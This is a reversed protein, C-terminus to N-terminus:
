AGARVRDIAMQVDAVSIERLCSMEACGHRRYCPACPVLHTLAVGRPSFPRFNAIHGNGATLAVVPVGAEAAIHSAVTDVGVVFEAARVVDVFGSWDLTGCLNTCNALGQTARDALAAERGSLGTCRVAYGREVFGTLLVRWNDAPWEREPTGAGMHAVVYGAGPVAREARNPTLHGRAVADIGLHEGILAVQIEIAHRDDDPYSVAHTYLAGFGASTFGVRVPVGARHLVRSSNPFFPYLDFALDYRAARIEATVRRADDRYRQVRSLIGAGSRSVSWHDLLHLRAVRPHGDLVTRAVTPALVGIEADPLIAHLAGITTTAMVADGLQGGIAVLVRRPARPIEPPRVRPRLGLAADIVRLGANGVVHRLLYRGRM